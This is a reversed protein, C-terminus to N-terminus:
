HGYRRGRHGESSRGGSRGRDSPGSPRSRGEGGQDGAARVREAMEDPIGLEAIAQKRSLRIKGDAGVDIVKVPFKDGMKVFDTVVRIFGDTLESVHCMGETEEAISLFCGFDRVGTVTGDLIQGIKPEFSLAEVMARAKEINEKGVAAITVKGDNEVEITSKSIEQISRITKGGPGILKGIKEPDIKLQIIRPANAPLDAKPAPMVERMKDLVFLRAIRAKELAAAMVSAPIGPVKIDMQLATIGTTTGAVKFDMDGFHDEDGLIDTLVVYKDGERILGMAIGAVPASIPVGSEMLALSGGCITAMSSSGNSEMVDSVIRITYPFQDEPPLVSKLARRALAGHGIERRKPGRSPGTEGVSFNPFNYHLMFREHYTEVIGDILMENAFSGLTCTALAQTEGRTFVASGHACTLYGMVISINRIQDPTRGDCRIGGLTMERLTNHELRAYSKSIDKEDVPPEMAVYEAVAAKQLSALASLRIGKDSNRAAAIIKPAYAAKFSEYYAPLQPPTFAMKPKGALAVLEEIMSVIEIIPGQAFDIARVMTAEDLQQAGCEVMCVGQRSGSIVLDLTSKEMVSKPPNTVFQGDILAIRVSGIIRVIPVESVAMAAAAAVQALTDSENEQDFSITLVNIDTRNRFGEPCNPRLPRDILRCILIERETPRGERRFFSGPIKGSAYTMERYDVTMPVMDTQLDPEPNVTVAAILKTDGCTAVVAGSAQKALFGTELEIVKGGINRSVRHIL